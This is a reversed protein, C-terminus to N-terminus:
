DDERESKEEIDIALRQVVKRLQERTRALELSQQMLLLLIVFFAAFFLLNLPDAIGLFRAVTDLIGPFIAFLVSFLAALLWTVAYKEPLYYLRLLVLVVVLMVVALGLAVFQPSM